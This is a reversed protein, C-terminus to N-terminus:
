PASSSPFLTKCASEESWDPQPPSRDDARATVGAVRLGWGVRDLATWSCLCWINLYSSFCCFFVIGFHPVYVFSHNWHASYVETPIFGGWKARTGPWKCAITSFQTSAISVAPWELARLYGRWVVTHRAGTWGTAVLWQLSWKTNWPILCTNPNNLFTKKGQFREM